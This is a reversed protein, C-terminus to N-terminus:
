ASVNFKVLTDDMLLVERLPDKIFVDGDVFLLQSIPFYALWSSIHKVYLSNSVPKFEFNLTINDDGRFASEEFNLLSLNKSLRTYQVQFTRLSREGERLRVQSFDSITRIVLYTTQSHRSLSIIGPDRLIIILKIHPNFSHVREKCGRKTM